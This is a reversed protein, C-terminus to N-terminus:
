AVRRAIGDTRPLETVAASEVPRLEFWGIVAVVAAL